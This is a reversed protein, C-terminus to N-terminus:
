HKNTKLGPVVTDVYQRYIQEDSISTDDIANMLSDISVSLAAAAKETKGVLDKRKEKLYGAIVHRNM